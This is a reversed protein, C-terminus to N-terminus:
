ADQLRIDVPHESPNEWHRECRLDLTGPEPLIVGHEGKSDSYTIRYVESASTEPIARIESIQDCGIWQGSTKEYIKRCRKVLLGPKTPLVTRLVAGVNFDVVASEGSSLTVRHVSTPQGGPMEEWFGIRDGEQHICSAYVTGMGKLRKEIQVVVTGKAGGNPKTPNRFQLTWEPRLQVPDPTFVYTRGGDSFNATIRYRYSVGFEVDLDLYARESAPLNRILTWEESSVPQRELTFTSIPRPSILDGSSSRVTAELVFWGLSVGDGEPQAKEITLTPNCELGTPPAESACGVGVIIVFLLVSQRV